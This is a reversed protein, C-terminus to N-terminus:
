RAAREYVHFFNTQLFTHQATRQFGAAEMWADVLGPAIAFQQHGEPWQGEAFDIVVVRGGPRLLKAFQRVYSGQDPLHHMTDCIFIVDVPEPLRPDTAGAVITQVNALGTAKAKGAVIALLGGDVDIAYVKGDGGVAKAFPVTFVGTGAGLDAVRMGPRLDLVKVVRDVQLAAVRDPNELVQQYQKPDRQQQAAAAVTLLVAVACPVLCRRLPM